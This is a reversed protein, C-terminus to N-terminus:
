AYDASREFATRMVAFVAIALFGGIALAYTSLTLGNLLAPSRGVQSQALHNVSCREALNGSLGAADCAHGAPREPFGPWNCRSM